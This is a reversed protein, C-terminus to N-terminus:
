VAPLRDWAADFRGVQHLVAVLDDVRLQGILVEVLRDPDGLGLEILVLRIHLSAADGSSAEVVFPSVAIAFGLSGHFMRGVLFRPETVTDTLVSTSVFALSNISVTNFGLYM